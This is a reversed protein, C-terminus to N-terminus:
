GVSNFTALDYHESFMKIIKEPLNPEQYDKNILLYINNSTERLHVFKLPSFFRAMIGRYVRFRQNNPEKINQESERDAAVFGFSRYPNEKYLDIMIDVCTRLVKVGENLNVVKKYRNELKNHCKLHFKIIITHFDYEEAHVIYKKKSDGWFTFIHKYEFVDKGRGKDRQVKRYSFGEDFM